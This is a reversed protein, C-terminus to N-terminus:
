LDFLVEQTFGGGSSRWRELAKYGTMREVRGNIAQKVVPQDVGPDLLVAALEDSLEIAGRRSESIGWRSVLMPNIQYKYMVRDDNKASSSKGVGILFAWTEAARIVRVCDDSLADVNVLFCCADCESPNDSYRVARLLSAVNDVMRRVVTGFSDAQADEWFWEATDQVGYTQAELSLPSGQFPAEGAFMSRRYINKMINLLNRPVGQSLKVVTKLGAYVPKKGYERCLQAYMDSSFHSYLQYYRESAQKGGSRFAACSAAIEQSLELLAGGRPAAKLFALINVKELLPHDPISLNAVVSNAQDDALFGDLQQRLRVVHPRDLGSMERGSIIALAADRYFLASDAEDFCQRLDSMDAFKDLGQIQLRKLLLREALREYDKHRDRLVEDIVVNDFEAGRHIPEGSGLTGLGKVGYLRSGLRLTVNGKRYRILSNVFRQQDATFNEVEDILYVIVLDRVSPVEEAFIKPIGYFLDGAGFGIEIGDLNRRIASNNVVVDVKARISNLGAILDGITLAEALEDVRVASSIKRSIRKQVDLPLPDTLPRLASLFSVALWLETSYSFVAAWTEDSQGKGSFRHVNLGDISTYVGIYQDHAIADSLSGHRLEQVASSCYRMLHTKGSGKGGLIFMPLLSTPNLLSQLGLEEVDVWYEQVQRDSYDSAKNLDFPNDRAVSKLASEMMGESVKQFNPEM